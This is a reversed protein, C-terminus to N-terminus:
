PTPSETLFLCECTELSRSTLNQFHDNLNLSNKPNYRKDAKISPKMIM